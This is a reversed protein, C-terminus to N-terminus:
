IEISYICVYIAVIKNNLYIAIQNVKNYKLLMIIKSGKDLHKLLNNEILLNNNKNKKQSHNVLKYKIKSKLKM